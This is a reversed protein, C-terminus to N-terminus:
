ATDFVKVVDMYGPGALRRKDFNKNARKVLSALQLM